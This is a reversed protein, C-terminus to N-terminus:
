AGDLTCTDQNCHCTLSPGPSSASPDSPPGNLHPGPSRVPLSSVCLPQVAGRGPCKPQAKQFLSM